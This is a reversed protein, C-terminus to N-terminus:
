NLSVALYLPGCVDRFIGQSKGPYARVFFCLHPSLRLFAYKKAYPEDVTNVWAIQGTINSFLLAFSLFCTLLRTISERFCDSTGEEVDEEWKRTPPCTRSGASCVAPQSEKSPEGMM